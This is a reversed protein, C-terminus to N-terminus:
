RPDVGQAILVYDQNLADDFGAFVIAYRFGLLEVTGDRIEPVWNDNPCVQPAAFPSVSRTPIRLRGNKTSAVTLLSSQTFDSTHSEIPNNRNSLSPNNCDITATYRAILLVLVNTHGVGALEFNSCDISRDANVTCGISGTQLHAGSPAFAPNITASYVGPLVDFAPRSVTRLDPATTSTDRCAALVVVILPLMALRKM